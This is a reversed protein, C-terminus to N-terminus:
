MSNINLELPCLKVIPRTIEKDGVRVSAARIHGDRSPFVKTVRALPWSGRPVDPNIVLVIDGVTIDRTEHNWKSRRNLGPLWERLWRKWFHSVLEQIRRWRKVPNYPVEDVSEPAFQGGVQGFMFHNPTLPPCDSPNASQYTLPRSNVLAEAGTFATVLEEDTIDASQLIAYIAIKATKIMTEHVGGWHPALAPNFQWVIGKNATSEKIKNKSKMLENVLEKLEKEAGIFNTGRDSLMKVPLGRRNVMRYFANLFSSTDLGYAMELHVARTTLCTFLCLYRKMRRKGRGQVTIFPGAFDVATHAFARLPVSLRIKPLPAMIQQATKAKRRKCMMCSNEVDRIEERAAIIWYKSSLASLTQNTGGHNTSEHYHRVILQTVPNKRPLIIPYKTDYSLFEAFALRGDSRIMGESDIKPNLKLLKSSAPIEKGKRLCEYENRFCDKQTERIIDKVRDGIEDVTLPGQMRSEKKVKCNEIFRMVWASVRILRFWQSFREPRLRWEPENTQTHTVHFTQQKCKKVEAKASAVTEVKNEPWQIPEDKLFTPGNWWLESKALMTVSAGRSVLDAPNSRTDVYRWQHPSSSQHIQSVRNAVFTKLQRSQNRVWFLVNLSDSWFTVCNMELELSKAISETLKLGIVAGLLELRPTSTAELPAVKGKAAVFRVSVSGDEYESRLYLVAGYAVNSADVFTHISMEKLEHERDEEQICRPLHITDLHKLDHFWQLIQAKIENNLEEDWDVGVVWINQMLVKATVIYPAIFGLPDFVSAITKLFNRKTIKMDSKPTNCHFSFQDDKAVWLVGLTKMVPLESESLNVQSARDKPPIKELVETKNSLWKRVHMGAKEWLQNLQSYLAICKDTNPMSDMNDDMYTSKLVTESALPYIKAFRVANHQSVFQALFPSANVGFVLRTFQYTEVPREPSERWLFRLYPQDLETLGVRLYMEAVDGVLAVSHKRFRMLVNQLNRQLKPGQHVVDNLSVGNYSASADFVIRVKTTEREPKVVPFHPLYWGNSNAEKDLVKHVYGKELYSNITEKYKEGVDRERQLRKETNKLRNLALDYNNQLNSKTEKWPLSVQYFNEKVQLTSEVQQLAVKENQSMENSIENVPVSEIEWFRHIAQEIGSLNNSFFTMYTNEEGKVGGVCTWGLPTLRAVPGGTVVAVEQISTHLESNDLGILMDVTNKKSIAPFNIRKLHSYKSSEKQWDIVKLNGTVKRVTQAEINKSFTGDISELTCQVSLSDFSEVQDNLVKVTIKQEGKLNLEAALDQNIYTKTSADDLLANVKMSKSGSKLIVPVTRLAIFDTSSSSNNCTHATVHMDQFPPAEPNLASSQKQHLLRHHLKTCGDIGCKRYNKCNLGIHNEKLCRFCMKLDKAKLWRNQSSLTKFQPCDWIGHTESCLKCKRTFDRKEHKSVTHYTRMGYSKSAKNSLGHITEAATTYYESEQSVWEQLTEVNQTKEHQSVWRHYRTLMLEPMKRQLRLYLVGDKLDDEHGMERLNIVAVDLLDAFKEINQANEEKMQPFKELEEIYRAVKRREGGFKRELRDKAAKYALQSHGLDEIAKLAKGKLYQRLQLLKYEDTAPAADICSMFAAKWSEYNKTEGDFVPISVRKLQKWMDKGINPGECDEGKSPVDTDSRFEAMRTRYLKLTEAYQEEIVESEKLVSLMDTTRKQSKLYDSLEYIVETAGDMAAEVKDLNEKLTDVSSEEDDILDELRNRARTFAAKARSKRKKLEMIAAEVELRAEETEKTMVTDSYRQGFRVDVEARRGSVTSNGPSFECIETCNKSAWGREAVLLSVVIVTLSTLQM